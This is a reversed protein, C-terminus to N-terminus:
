RRVKLANSLAPFGDKIHKLSGTSLGVMGAALQFPIGNSEAINRITQAHM